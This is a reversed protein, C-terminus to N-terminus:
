EYDIETIAELRTYDVIVEQEGRDNLYAYIYEKEITAKYLHGNSSFRKAFWLAKDYSLTWSLANYYKGEYTQGRYITVKNPLSNYTKLEDSNMIYKKSLRFLKKITLLSRGRETWNPFEQYTWCNKLVDALLKNDHFYQYTLRLFNMQYAPNLLLIIDYISNAKEITAQMNSQWKSYKDPDQTVNFIEHTDYDQLWYSNYFPHTIWEFGKNFLPTPEVYIMAKAVHKISNLDTRRGM